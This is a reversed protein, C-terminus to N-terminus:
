WRIRGVEVYYLPKPFKGLLLDKMSLIIISRILKMGSNFGEKFVDIVFVLTM